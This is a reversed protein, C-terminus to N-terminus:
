LRYPIRIDPLGTPFDKQNRTVLLTNKHKATAWIIADPLKLRHQRRISSAIHALPLDMHVLEFNSLFVRSAQEEQTTFSGSMVEMWTVISIAVRQYRQLEEFAQTHGKGIDIIINSDFVPIM